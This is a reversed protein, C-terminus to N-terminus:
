RGVSPSPPLPAPGEVGAEPTTLDIVTPALDPNQSWTSALGAALDDASVTPTASGTQSGHVVPEASSSKGAVAPPTHSTGDGALSRDGELASGTLAAGLNEAFDPRLSPAVVERGTDRSPVTEEPLVERGTTEIAPSAKSSMPRTTDKARAQMATIAIGMGALGLPTPMQGLAPWAILGAALPQLTMAASADSVQLQAPVLRSRHYFGYSGLSTITALGLWQGPTAWGALSLAGIGQTATVLGLGIVAGFANAAVLAGIAGMGHGGMSKPAAAKPTVGQQVANFLMGGTAFAVGTWALGQGLGQTLLALGAGGLVGGTLLARRRDWKERGKWVMYAGLPITELQMILTALSASTRNLAAVMLGAQGAMALGIGFTLKLARAREARDATKWRFEPTALAKGSRRQARKQLRGVGIFMPISLACRTVIFKMPDFGIRGSVVAAIAWAGVSSYMWGWARAQPNKMTAVPHRVFQAVSRGRQAVGAFLRQALSPNLSQQSDQAQPSIRSM